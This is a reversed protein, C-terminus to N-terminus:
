REKKEAPSNEPLNLLSSQEGNNSSSNNGTVDIQRTKKLERIESELQRIYMFKKFQWGLGLLVVVIAGLATSALIVMVKSIEIFEWTLINISIREPNQIAFVAVMFAFFLAFIFYLQARSM